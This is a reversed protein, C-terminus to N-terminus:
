TAQLCISPSTRRYTRTCNSTLMETHDMDLTLAGWISSCRDWLVSMHKPKGNELLNITNQM